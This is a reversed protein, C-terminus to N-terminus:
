YVSDRSLQVLSLDTCDLIVQSFHAMHYHAINSNLTGPSYIIGKIIAHLKAEAILERMTQGLPVHPM